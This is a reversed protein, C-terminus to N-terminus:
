PVVRCTIRHLNNEKRRARANRLHPSQYPSVRRTLAKHRLYVVGIHKGVWAAQHLRRKAHPPNRMLQCNLHLRYVALM